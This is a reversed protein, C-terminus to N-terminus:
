EFQFHMDASSHSRGIASATFVQVLARKSRRPVQSEAPRLFQRSSCSIARKIVDYIATGVLGSIVGEGFTLVPGWWEASELLLVCDPKQDEIAYAVGIGARELDDYVVQATPAFAGRYRRGGGVGPSILVSIKDPWRGRLVEYRGVTRLSRDSM